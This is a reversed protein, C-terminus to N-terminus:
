QCAVGGGNPGLIQQVSGSQGVVFKMGDICRTETMGNVGYSYDTSTNTGQMVLVAFVVIIMLVIVLEIFTVGNQKM